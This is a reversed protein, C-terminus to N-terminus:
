QEQVSDPLFEIARLIEEMDISAVHQAQLQTISLAMEAITPAEFLKRLPFEVNFLRDVRAIIRTALLSHGGLEFFNAHIGITEVALIECWIAAVQAELLHRPAVFDAAITTRDFDPVPLARRDLKGNPTLPLASLPVFLTPIMYSPLKQKLYARLVQTEVIEGVVPVIYAVLQKDGQDAWTIVVAAQIAPHHNLQVEIEQLEIRFGRVKVQQDKRGLFDLNGSPLYRVLDGTRYLRAAPQDSFPDPIFKEATLAPQNIYGRAVGAGGIYLEGPVGIPTPNLAADLVYLTTNAIPRGIPVRPWQAATAFDAEYFTSACTTEAPGYVNIWRVRSGIKAQWLAFAEAQVVDMGTIVLRLHAPLPAMDIAMSMAWQHWYASPLSAISIKQEALFHLFEQISFAYDDPKFVLTAGASLYVMVDAIFHESGFPSFQLRRDTSSVAFTRASFLSYNAIGQQTAMIGKPQGTSGSTYVVYALDEPSIPTTLNAMCEQQLREEVAELDIRVPIAPLDAPANRSTIVWNTQTQQCILALREAPWSPDLCIFAGGAKLVALMAMAAEPTRPLCIAVLSRETDVSGVGQKQLYHALQNARQNLAAYSLHAGQYILAIQDPYRQCHAEFRQHIYLVTAPPTQTANWDVLLQQREEDPLIPLQSLRQQGPSPHDATLATLLTIFHGLMRRVTAQDFLDTKYYLAVKLEGKSDTITMYLDFPATGKDIKFPEITLDPLTLTIDPLNQLAFMVQFMPHHSPDRTVALEELLKEFPLESHDYADLAMQRVRNLLERVTPDGALNGRLALTNVFFGILRETEVPIRNAIPTGIVIEDQGTYRQLLTQFAAILTMFLTVNERRCFARTAATLSPPLSRVEHAGDDTQSLARPRDVPLDLLPPSNVFQQQWYALQATLRDTTLQQRQWLSYEAYQLPLNPLAFPQNACAATYLQSFEKELVRMSWGDTAIHHIVLLLVHDDDRLRILWVRVMLDKTLDFPQHIAQRVLGRAITERENAPHEALDQWAIHVPRPPETVQRPVGDIAPFVTRLVRHREVIQDLARQLAHRNLPGKLRLVKPMHYVPSAPNLQHIFWLRQQASSLLGPEQASRAQLMAQPQDARNREILRQAFLARQEASLAAIREQPNLM